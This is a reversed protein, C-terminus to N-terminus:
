GRKKGWYGSWNRMQEMYEFGQDTPYIHRQSADNYRHEDAKGLDVLANELSLRVTASEPGDELEAHDLKGEFALYPDSIIAGASDVFALYLGGPKNQRLNNFFLSVMASPEGILDVELGPAGLEISERVGGPWKLWGNGSWTNGGWSLDTLGTWYRLTSSSAELYFLFRPRNVSATLETTVGATLDRGM